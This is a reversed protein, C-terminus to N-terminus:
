SGTNAPYPSGASTMRALSCRSGTTDETQTQASTWEIKLGKHFGMSIGLGFYIRMAGGGYQRM